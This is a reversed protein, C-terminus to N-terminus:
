GWKEGARRTLGAIGDSTETDMVMIDLTRGLKAAFNNVAEYIPIYYVPGYDHFLITGGIKLKNFWPMDQLIKGHNGDVFIFDFAPGYYVADYDWSCMAIVQVNPWPELNAQALEYEGPRPNLTTIRALPAGQALMSASYGVASGLELINASARNHESALGYLAMAQYHKQGSKIPQSVTLADTAGLYMADLIATLNDITDKLFM